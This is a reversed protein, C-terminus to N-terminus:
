IGGPAVGGADLTSLMPAKVSDDAAAEPLAAADAKKIRPALWVLFAILAAWPLLSWPGYIAVHKNESIGRYWPLGDSITNYFAFLFVASAATLAAYWRPSTMLVFPALWVFYQPAIGSAFVFFLAWVAAMTLFVDQRRRRWALWLTGGIILYKTAAMAIAQAAPMNDVGMKQFMAAGTARLCYSWGWIGWYGSYGLANKCFAQPASILAPAWGALTVLSAALAFGAFKKRPWWYAAFVPAVLLPAVKVQCAIGLAIGCLLPRQELCMWAAVLLLLAMVPDVNGHYGSVMLSVPSLTFLVIAWLPPRGTKARLHLLVLVALFDALIGPVRLSLAFDRVTGDSAGVLSAVWTGVLPTHNFLPVSAYTAGLGDRAVREGFFGFLVVDTTGITMSAILLKLLMAVIAAALVIRNPQMM